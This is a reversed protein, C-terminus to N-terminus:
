KKKPASAAPRAAPASAAAGPVAQVLRQGISTNLARVKPEVISQTDAVLKDTFARQIEPAMQQYKKNVPSEFWALLQRLEDETFNEELATGIVTPSIKVARDRVQPVVDDAYKKADNRIDNAIADRKDAPVRQELVMGAQQMLQVAPQEVLQRAMAEVSPQQLTLLKQVLEKKAPSSPASASSAQAFVSSCTAFLAATLLVRRM